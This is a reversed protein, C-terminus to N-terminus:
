CKQFSGHSVKIMENRAFYSIKAVKRDIQPSLLVLICISVVEFLEHHQHRGLLQLLIPVKVVRLHHDIM